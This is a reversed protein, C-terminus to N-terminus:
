GDRKLAGWWARASRWPEHVPPHSRSRQVVHRGRLPQVKRMVSTRNASVVRSSAPWNMATSSAKERTPQRRRSRGRAPKPRRETEEMFSLVARGGRRAEVSGFDVGLKRAATKVCARFSWGERHLGPGEPNVSAGRVGAQSSGPKARLVTARISWGGGSGCRSDGSSSARMLGARGAWCERDERASQRRTTQAPWASRSAASRRRGNRGRRCPGAPSM